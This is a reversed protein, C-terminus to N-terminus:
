KSLKVSITGGATSFVSDRFSRISYTYEIGETLGSDNYTVTNEPLTIKVKDAELTGAMRELLFGSENHCVDQWELRISRETLIRASLSVPPLLFDSRLATENLYYELNTYGEGKIDGNRDGPDSPNLGMKLEWEDPMGDRDADLKPELSKLLPWGGVEEQSDIIGSRKGWEGGFHASSNRTEEVVRADVKDRVPLVAGADALVLEIAIDAPFTAVPPVDFVVDSRVEAAYDGQVGGAWNDNSIAPYDHVINSEVFWRGKDDWPEVIRNKKKSAPGAKYYNAVLNQMGAEGGYSSNFGWNYIVNNRFDVLEREPQGHYRSGMFRPNRSTNHAILNHHFSAGMGGWIGGYGHNGKHHYSENLSESIICWQVTTNENDYFSANEDIGWSFSCHDVIINKSHTISIADESLRNIDGLRSRIYRIIVNDTHVNLPYDCICIGEGPATQGAITLDGYKVILPSKLRINGSVEFVITRKGRIKLGKRLSGPGDDALTTVIYVEGGRGGSTLAGFGRAGPFATIQAEVPVEFAFIFIILYILYMINDTPFIQRKATLIFM